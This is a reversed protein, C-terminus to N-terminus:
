LEERGGHPAQEALPPGLAETRGQAGSGSHGTYNAPDRLYLGWEFIRDTLDGMSTQAIVLAGFFFLMFGSILNRERVQGQAM